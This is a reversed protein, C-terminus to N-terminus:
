IDFRAESSGKLNRSFVDIDESFKQLTCRRIVRPCFTAIYQLSESLVPGHQVTSTTSYKHSADGVVVSAVTSCYQITGYTGYYLVSALVVTSYFWSLRCCAVLL